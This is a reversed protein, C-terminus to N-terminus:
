SLVPATPREYRYGIGRVTVIREPTLPDKEVKRRLRGVHWTVADPADYEPGWVTTLLQDYSLAVGANKVLTTLIRFEISTLQAPEGDVFVEHRQFDITITGDTYRTETRTNQGVEARRLAAGVRAMIEKGGVPKVVYDDAGANLGDIKDQEQGKASLVLVPVDSVERIRRILEVGDMKPMLIDVIVLDPQHRFFERLGEQGDYAPFGIYGTRELWDVILNTLSVEDDVVLVKSGGQEAM